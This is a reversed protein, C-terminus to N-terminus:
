SEDGGTLRYRVFSPVGDILYRIETLGDSFPTGRTYGLWMRQTEETTGGVRDIRELALGLEEESVLSLLARIGEVRWRLSAGASVALGWTARAAVDANWTATVQGDSPAILVHPEGMAGVIEDLREAMGDSLREEGLVWITTM